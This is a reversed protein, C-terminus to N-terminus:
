DGSNDKVAKECKDKDEANDCSAAEAIGPRLSESFKYIDAIDDKTIFNENRFKNFLFSVSVGIFATFIVAIISYVAAGKWRFKNNARQDAKIQPIDNEIIAIVPILDKQTKSIDQVASNMSAMTAEITAVSKTMDRHLDEHGDKFSDVKKELAKIDKANEAPTPSM